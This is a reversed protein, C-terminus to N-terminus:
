AMFFHYNKEVHSLEKLAKQLQKQHYIYNKHTFTYQTISQKHANHNLIPTIGTNKTM